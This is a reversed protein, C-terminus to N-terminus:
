VHVTAGAVPRGQLDIVEGAIPEDRALRVTLEKGDRWGRDVWAVGYNRAFAVLAPDSSGLKAKAEFRFRGDRGTTAVAAPPPARRGASYWSPALYLKAGALPEGAPSLVRGSVTVVKAVEPTAKGQALARAHQGRAATRGAAPLNIAAGVGLAVV